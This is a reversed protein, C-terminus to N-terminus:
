RLPLPPHPGEGLEGRLPLGAARYVSDVVQMTKVGDDVSTRVPVQGRVAQVVERLQFVYSPTTTFREVQPVDECRVTLSAGDHPMHPNPVTLEGREGVVTLWADITDGTYDLSTRFRGICGGPFSLEAEMSIDIDPSLLRPAARVVQPEEGTLIRLLDVCYCGADMTVGGGLSYQFRINNPTVMSGPVMLGTDIVRLEGLQGSRIIEQVRLIVPHYRNHLAEILPLGAAAAAEAMRVAEAANAAIPKECLVPKGAQLVRISWDCHLSVPLPVYVLDIAPDDLLEQYSGYATPIGHDSAFARAKVIDRSAIAGVVADPVEPLASMLAYGVVGACGLVGIRVPKLAQGREDLQV